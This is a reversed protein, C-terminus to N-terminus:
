PLMLLNKLLIIPIKKPNKAITSIGTSYSGPIYYNEQRAWLYTKYDTKNINIVYKGNEFEVGSCGYSVGSFANPSKKIIEEWLHDKETVQEKNLQPFKHSIQFQLNEQDSFIFIM